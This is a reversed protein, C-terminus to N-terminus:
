DVFLFESSSLLVKLYRGLPTVPLMEKRDKADAGGPATVGAMMGEGMKPKDDKKALKRAEEKKQDDTKADEAKRREEYARLPEASLYDLGATLEEPKPDRGFLARYAKKIRAANDTEAELKRALKEAQQQMFDSNMLFLRQLPVNTSFRQEASITPAPFDFLQLFSDLKYRSVRAYLTRRAASPTLEESPGGMKDDLTGAVFLASDRVEEATMRRRSARWYWRNGSDKAFAAPSDDASSQYVASVMMHRQLKKISYGNEVFWAALYELLEPNSPPDGLKGFNSPSNVMGTGFHWKWVRNVIVRMALPQGVIAAALEQRGSGKAFAPPDGDVLVSPFHRAVEDGPKFPNGRVAVKIPAPKEVDEVGHVYAYKPPMAKGLVKIDERLDDIYRRRDAGLWRDLSPGRFVFLGPKDEEKANAPDATDVYDSRFMDSYFFVKDGPLSKLELGCGPCFDDNTIFENPLNARKKKKTGPLAKARIIDNEEKIARADFMVEAVLDQFETALTKAEDESGGEKIMAQWKKLYPYFKPPKALFRLWRQFLEYDLKAGSAVAAPEEKPEGMVKWAAQMYKSTQLALTQALQESETGTFESLLEEKDKKKKELAKYDDVVSAPALPYEHYPSNLFVGALSYYDKQPIPDYKHDHCRACAVTLGLFGRSVVDVRDHREDARTVEVSGNDYYWPGIGLFGLAPLMRVRETDGMQDAAVQAKVFQDYPMDDNFAKM